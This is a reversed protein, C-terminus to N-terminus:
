LMLELSRYTQLEPKLRLAPVELKVWHTNLSVAFTAWQVVGLRLHMLLHSDWYQGEVGKAM